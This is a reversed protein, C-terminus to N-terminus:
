GKPEGTKRTKRTKRPYISYFVINKKNREEDQEEGLKILIKHTRKSLTSM